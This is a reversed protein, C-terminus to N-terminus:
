VPWERSTHRVGLIQVYDAVVRYIVIYPYDGVVVERSGHVAGPRGAKPFDDLHAVSALIHRQVAPAGSTNDRKISDIVKALDRNARALWQITM